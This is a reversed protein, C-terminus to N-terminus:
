SRGLKMREVAVIVALPPLRLEALAVIGLGLAVCVGLTYQFLPCPIKVPSFQQPRHRQRRRRHGGGGDAARRGRVADGRAGTRRVASAPPIRHAEFSVVGLGLPKAANGAAVVAGVLSVAAVVRLFSAVMRLTGGSAVIDRYEPM